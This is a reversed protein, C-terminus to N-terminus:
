SDRMMSAWCNRGLVSRLRRSVRCVQAAEPAARPPLPPVPGPDAVAANTPFMQRFQARLIENLQSLEAPALKDGAQKM